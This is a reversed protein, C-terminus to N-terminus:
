FLTAFNSTDYPDYHQQALTWRDPCRMRVRCLDSPSSRARTMNSSTALVLSTFDVDPSSTLKPNEPRCRPISVVTSVWCGVEFRLPM